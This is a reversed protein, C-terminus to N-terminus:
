FGNKRLQWLLSIVILTVLGLSTANLLTLFAADSSPRYFGLLEWLPLLVNNALTPVAFLGFLITLNRRIKETVRREALRTEAERISLGEKIRRKL